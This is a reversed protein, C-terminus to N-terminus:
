GEGEGEAFLIGSLSARADGAFIKESYLGLEYYFNSNVAFTLSRFEFSAEEENSNCDVLRPGQSM